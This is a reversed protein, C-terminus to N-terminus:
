RWRRHLWLWQEPHERVWGEVVSTIAQMTGAIAIRGDTDRPPAIPETIEVWFSNGDPKRVVRLGHIPSETQRAILAILPNARCRRGFFVVEVGKTMHQDVLMGVHTGSQLLRALKVPADLGSAVLEGMLPTRLKVILDSIPRINPRRYLVASNAVLVNAAVAPLEWNALHAAFGLMPKGSNAMRRYRDAVDPAYTIVDSTQVGAGQLCFEDLHAFEVAIRGLNDWVGALIQEIEAASKGPFAARLNDRGVRHEPLLPGLKRMLAGAFDATRRRDMRQFARLLGAALAGVTADLVKSRPKAMLAPDSFVAAPKASRDHKGSFYSL